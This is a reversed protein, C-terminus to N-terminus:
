LLPDARSFLGIKFGVRSLWRHLRAWDDLGVMERLEKSELWGEAVASQARVDGDGMELFAVLVGNSFRGTAHWDAVCKDLLATAPTKSFVALRQLPSLFSHVSIWWRVTDLLQQGTKFSLDQLQMAFDFVSTNNWPERLDTPEAVPMADKLLVHQRIGYVGSPLPATIELFESVLSLVTTMIAETPEKEAIVLEVFSNFLALSPAPYRERSGKLLTNLVPSFVSDRLKNWFQIRRNGAETLTSHTIVGLSAVHSELLSMSEASVLWGLIRDALTRMSMRAEIRNKRSTGLLRTRLIALISLLFSSLNSWGQSFPQIRAPLSSIAEDVLDSLDGIRLNELLMTRTTESLGQNLIFDGKAIGADFLSLALQKLASTGSFSGLSEYASTMTGSAKDRRTIEDLESPPRHRWFNDPNTSGVFGTPLTFSYRVTSLAIKIPQQSSPVHINIANVTRAVLNSTRLPAHKLLIFLYDQVLQPLTNFTHITTKASPDSLDGHVILATRLPLYNEALQLLEEQFSLAPDSIVTPDNLFRRIPHPFPTIKRGKILTTSPQSSFLSWAEDLLTPDTSQSATSLATRLRSLLPQSTDPPVPQFHLNSSRSIAACPFSCPGEAWRLGGELEFRGVQTRYRGVCEM